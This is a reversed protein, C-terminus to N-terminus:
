ELAVLTPEPSEVDVRYRLEDGREVGWLVGRDDTVHRQALFLPDCAGTYLIQGTAKDYVAYRM